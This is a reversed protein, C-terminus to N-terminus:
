SPIGQQYIPNAGAGHDIGALNLDAIHPRDTCLAPSLPKKISEIIEIM